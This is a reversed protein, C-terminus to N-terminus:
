PKRKLRALRRTNSSIRSEDRDLFRGMSTPHTTLLERIAIGVSTQVRAESDDLLTDILQLPVELHGARILWLAATISTRRRMPDPHAALDFLLEHDGKALVYGGVVRPAARDVLDWSNIGDHNEIYLQLLRHRQEDTIQPRRARFDLICVGVLRMEYWPSRLLEEVHDDPLSTSSKALDFVSKM